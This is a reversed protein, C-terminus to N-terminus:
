YLLYELGVEAQTLARSNLKRNDFFFAAKAGRLNIKIHPTIFFKIEMAPLFSFINLGLDYFNMQFNPMFFLSVFKYRFIKIENLVGISVGISSLNKPDSALDFIGSSGTPLEVSFNFGSIFWDTFGYKFSFRIPLQSFEYLDQCSIGKLKYWSISFDVAWMGYYNLMYPKYEYPKRIAMRRKVENLIEKKEQNKNEGSIPSILFIILFILFFKKVIKM